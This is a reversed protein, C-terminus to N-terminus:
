SEVATKIKEYIEVLVKDQQADDLEALPHKPDNAAQFKSIVSDKVTCSKVAIWIIKLGQQEAKTLLQPVEKGQIFPSNLFDQTVLLVAMKASELHKQIDTEWKSGPQIKGDDWTRVLGQRELPTLFKKVRELWEKDEHSYSVFVCKLEVIRAAVHVIYLQRNARDIQYTIELPTEPPVYLWVDKLGGFEQTHERQADPDKALNDVADWLAALLEKPLQKRDRHVEESYSTAYQAFVTTDPM